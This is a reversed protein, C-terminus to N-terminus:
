NAWPQLFGRGPEQWAATDGATSSGTVSCPTPVHAFACGALAAFLQLLVGIGHVQAGPNSMMTGLQSIAM